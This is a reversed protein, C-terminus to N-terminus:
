RYVKEFRRKNMEGIKMPEYDPNYANQAKEYDIVKQLVAETGAAQM